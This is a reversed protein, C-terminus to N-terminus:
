DENLYQGIHVIKTDVASSVFDKFGMELNLSKSLLVYKTLIFNRLRMNHFLSDQEM